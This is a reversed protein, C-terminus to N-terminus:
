ILKPIIAKRNKPYDKFKNKYWNHHAIARPFLNAIVWILFVVGSVSWTLIAWGLWEIIEGLYNPSSVYRYLFANPISRFLM